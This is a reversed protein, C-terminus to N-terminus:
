FGWAVNVSRGVIVLKTGPRKESVQKFVEILFPVNKHPFLTSVFLIYECGVLDMDLIGDDQVELKFGNPAIYLRRPPLGYKKM